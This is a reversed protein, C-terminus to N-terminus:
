RKRVARSRASALPGAQLIGLYEQVAGSVAAYELRDGGFYSAYHQQLDAHEIAALTSESGYPPKGYPHEGFIFASAYSPMLGGVGSDRAASILASAREREKDFEEEVLAPRMLLDAVLEIMLEADRSLFEASVDVSELAADVEISGGVGAVAEAFAAADRDGAGKQLVEALLQSLGAKDAPDTISGGRVSAQMGILPVDHKEALLLVTGNDLVVREYDPLRIDQATAPVAAVLLALIMRRITM